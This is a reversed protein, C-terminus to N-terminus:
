SSAEDEISLPFHCNFMHGKLRTSHPKQVCTKQANPCRPGLRCGIPLHQLPPISGPLAYLHSKHKLNSEFDPVAQLLANTYPHRPHNIVQDRTGSEVTQGCYMVTLTDSLNSVSEIDHSIFLISTNNVKNLKHLLKLIQIQTTSEMATTPEDAILLRPKKAIAMAIMIKQCVGESLEHPYSRLVSIPDKIGVKHLLTIARKKRWQFRQWFGGEFTNSPIAEEIQEAIEQTPDLHSSPEQFIMAIDNAMLRRRESPTLTLLDIDGLRMRDARVVWGDKKIGLIAKAVLSKGSGSEGVLGQIEGETLTLNVREVAKVRGQSTNIEITLNRIDLIAM